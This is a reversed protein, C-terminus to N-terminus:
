PDGGGARDEGFFPDDKLRLLLAKRADRLRSRVTLEGAGVIQSIEAISHGELDRLVLVTRKKEPLTALAARLRTVREKSELATSHDPSPDTAEPLVGTETWSFRKLWRHYWRRHQLLTRYCIGFTWTSLASRGEFAARNQLVALLALQVLDDFEGHRAATLSAMQRYVLEFLHEPDAWTAEASEETPRREARAGAADRSPPPTGVSTAALSAPTTM